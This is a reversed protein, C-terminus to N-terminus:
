EAGNLGRGLATVVRWSWRWLAIALPPYDIVFLRGGWDIRWLEERGRAQALLHGAPVSGPDGYARTVGHSAARLMWAKWYETDWSGTSPLFVARVWAGFVLAALLWAGRGILRREAPAA